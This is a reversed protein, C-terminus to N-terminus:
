TPEDRRKRAGVIDAAYRHRRDAPSVPDHPLGVSRAHQWALQDDLGAGVPDVTEATLMRPEAVAFLSLLQTALDRAVHLRGVPDSLLDSGVAATAAWACADAATVDLAGPHPVWRGIAIDGDERREDVLRLPGLDNIRAAAVPLDDITLPGHQSPSLAARLTLPGAAGTAGSWAVLACLQDYLACELRSRPILVETQVDHWARGPLDPWALIGTGHQATAHALLRGAAGAGDPALELRWSRSRERAAHQGHLVVRGPQPFVAASVDYPVVPPQTWQWSRLFTQAVELGAAGTPSEGGIEPVLSVLLWADTGRELGGLRHDQRAALTGSCGSSDPGAPWSMWGGSRLVFITGAPHPM